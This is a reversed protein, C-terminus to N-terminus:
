HKNRDLTSKGLFYDGPGDSQIVLPTTAEEMVTSGVPSGPTGMTAGTLSGPTGMTAGMPSGPTGMTSGMPGGIPVRPSPGEPTGRTDVYDNGSEKSGKKGGLM